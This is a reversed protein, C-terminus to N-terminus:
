FPLAEEQHHGAFALQDDLFISVIYDESNRLNSLSLNLVDNAIFAKNRWSYIQPHNMPPEVIEVRAEFPGPTKTDKSFRILLNQNSMEVQQVFTWQNHFLRWNPQVLIKSVWKARVSPPLLYVLTEYEAQSRCVIAWVAGLGLRKPILVEANRHYVITRIQDPQLWSHHYVSEFPMNRLHDINTTPTAGAAVNGDTFLCDARSLLNLSKFLLYVPVPCHSNLSWQSKPRFGENHYQTPTRPRFYLRVHDQWVPNTQEIVEPAAIDVRLQGSKHAQERSLLEGAKLVSVVNRIDTCHFLSNPWWHRASGLWHASQLASLHRRIASIESKPRLRM